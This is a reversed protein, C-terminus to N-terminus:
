SSSLICAYTLLSLNLFDRQALIHVEHLCTFTQFIDIIKISTYQLCRTKSKSVIMNPEINSCAVRVSFITNSVYIRRPGLIIPSIKLNWIVSSLLTNDRKIMIFLYPCCHSFICLVKLIPKVTYKASKVSDERVVCADM